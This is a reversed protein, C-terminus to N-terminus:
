AGADFGVGIYLGVLQDLPNGLWNSGQMFMDPFMWRDGLDDLENSVDDRYCERRASQNM